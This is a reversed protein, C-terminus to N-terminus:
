AAREHALGTSALKIVEIFDSDTIRRGRYNLMAGVRELFAARKELPMNGATAMLERLQNDSLGIM